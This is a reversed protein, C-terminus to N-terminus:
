YNKPKKPCCGSQFTLSHNNHTEDEINYIFVILYKGGGGFEVFSGKVFLDDINEWVFRLGKKHRKEVAERRNERYALVRRDYVKQLDSRIYDPDITKQEMVTSNNDGEINEM